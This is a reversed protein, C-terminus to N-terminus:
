TAGGSHERPELVEYGGGSEDLPNDDAQYIKTEVVAHLFLTDAAVLEWPLGRELGVGCPYAEDGEAEDEEGGAVGNEDLALPVGLREERSVEVNRKDERQVKPVLERPLRLNDSQLIDRDPM